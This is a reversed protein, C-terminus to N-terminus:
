ALAELLAKAEQLDATDFGETFWDYIPALLDHAEQRQDQHQWLRSLSMATRLELSKAQQRRALALAQRFSAEAEVVQSRPVNRVLLLEGQLRSLEAEYYREETDAVVTLAETLAALGEEGHQVQMCAEALLALFHLGRFRAGTTRYAAWGQRMQAMGEEEQGQRVLEAGRLLTGHALYQPLGHQEALAILAEAQAQAAQGERRLQHLWVAFSLAIALSLPHAAHSPRSLGAV